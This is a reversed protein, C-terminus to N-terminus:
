EQSASLDLNKDWLNRLVAAVGDDDGDAYSSGSMRDHLREEEGEFSSLAGNARLSSGQRPTTPRSKAKDKDTLSQSLGLRGPGGLATGRKGNAAGNSGNQAPIHKTKNAGPLHSLRAISRAIPNQYRRVVLYEMGTRELLKGIRPDRNDYGSGGVLPSVGVVGVGGVPQAPEISSSARQLNLKQQTRSKEAPAAKYVTRRTRPALASDSEDDSISTRNKLHLNGLSQPRRVGEVRQAQARAPTYFSGSEGNGGSGPGNVFRSILDEQGSGVLPASNKPTGFLSPPGRSTQSEPSDSHHRVSVTEASMQPPASHSPTRQLLRSTLYQNHHATERDPSPEPEQEQGQERGSTDEHPTQPRSNDRSQAKASSQESSVASGRRSLYPSASTSADVWEDEPESGLDFHVQGKAGKLKGVEKHSSSRKISTSSKTRKGIDAHSRNRKLSSQSSNNKLNSASPDRQLKVDSNSRRHSPSVLPAREPSPSPLRRTLKSTSSAQHKHLGKSSPVRAHFRTSPGGGVVHKQSKTSRQHQHSAHDSVQLDSEHRTVPPRKSQATSTTSNDTEKAM